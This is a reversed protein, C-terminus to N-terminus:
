SRFADELAIEFTKDGVRWELSGSSVTRAEDGPRWVEVTNEDADVIRLETVGSELYRRRKLDRDFGRNSPSVVEVVLDPPGHIRGSEVLHLRDVSLFVVDPETITDDHLRVTIPGGVAARGDRVAGWGRNRM